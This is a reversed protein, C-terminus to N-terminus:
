TLHYTHACVCTHVDLNICTNENFTLFWLMTVIEEGFFFYIKHIENVPTKLCQNFM